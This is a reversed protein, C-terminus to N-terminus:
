PRTFLIEGTTKETGTLPPLVYHGNGILVDSSLAPQRLVGSFTVPRKITKNAVMDSLVFSGTFTGTTPSFTRTKWQTSNVSSSDISVLNKSSLNLRNPLNDNAASNTTTHNVSFSFASGNFYLGLRDALTIAPVIPTTKTAAKAAAPPLWPDIMLVTNVPGFGARYSTDTARGTKKWTLGAQEVYRRNFLESNSSPNPHVALSIDGALYSETRATRYPQVFLRYSPNEQNDPSLASTFTTGDGLRGTLTMVGTRSVAATAWGSGLPVTEGAPTAPELIATHAGAYQVATRPALNLLRRGNNASGLPASDRTASALVDGGLPLTFDIVYPIKIKNVLVNTTAIGRTTESRLNSTLSGTFSVASTHTGTSLKATFTRSSTPVTISLKAVPLATSDMLLAEYTGAFSEIVMSGPQYNFTYNLAAAGRATIPYVGGLSTVTATTTLLPAKTLAASTDTGKFGTVNYTLPPNPQGLFKNKDSPRVTLMAKAIVLTGTKVVADDDVRFLYSGANTPATSGYVGDIRYSIVPSSGGLTSIQKPNGDYTQSLDTLTLTRPNGNVIISRTVAAAASYNSGGPQSATLKVTGTGTLTLVNGDLIAPGSVLTFAVPLGSSATATLSIPYWDLYARAPPMFTIAQSKLTSLDGFGSIAFTYPSTERSNNAITVTAHRKGPLRPDFTIAFTTSDGETLPSDPEASVTFDAAAEGSIQIFDQGTLLIEEGAVNSLTFSRTKQTNLLATSGFDTGDAFAPTSDANAIPLTNGSIQMVAWPPLALLALTHNALPGSISQMFRGGPLRASASVAVPIWSDATGNNGLKGNWNSGWAAVTGDLCQAVSHDEGASVAVVTKGSLVGTTRVAVPTTSNTSSNNGLQGNLNYGWAATTGDSCIALSHYGGASISVVTKSSLVGTATVAVPVNSNTSSSNGLQGYDNFGWAAVTGDSCLGMSHATGASVAVVTKDFLVGTTTVAVPVHSNTTGNSGLQGSFNYGWAAVTGDSCLALSYESGASVAVVTKGSLVETATVTVPVSSSTTSGNGLQGVNNYGWAAVTGDSCLALSHYSGASIAIVTKGSLAGTATVAVPVSSSTGSDNGWTAVTGDSCLALSHVKGASISVVTKGSLVGDGRVAAPIRNGTPTPSTNGLQGASNWGWALLRIEKWVLVLDNGTGGYYNVVFNYNVGGHNLTATQGQILNSFVGNIFGIGTNKVVMLETGLDPAYGLTLTATSGSIITVTPLTMPVDAAATYSSILNGLATGFMGVSSYSIGLANIAYAKFSYATRENLGTVSATFVGTTGTAMVKTVGNGDISPNSNTATEAYVIGREIITVKGDSVVNGGLTATSVTAEASTPMIVVPAMPPPSVGLALAHNAFPGTSTRAFLEGYLRAGTSVAVPTSSSILSNNGLQGSSNSGWTAVTGDTCLAMSQYSGASIAAVTKGSLVGNRLVAVPVTSDTTSNNGLQGSDNEGWAAVTGDSCLAVSHYFGASAAVVTKGSLVGTATVAVPVSSSSASGNGLQGANNFGWAAVTGDSCLALSHYVGASIAVVAKGTLLGTMTVAVPETSDEESNNGWTAVTGDSCLALSHDYGASVAVVTKGSLVGTTTVAVPVNSDMTSNNGLQGNGNRGWTALTGDSCLAMSHSRGASVAVVTKGSLVGAAMVAVPVSSSTTSNNGLQGYFNDGWAVLTGDSCLAMSHKEGASATVVTKDYLPSTATVVVPATSQITSNSGLQGSDNKGWALLRNDKWMLVLDNGTGGYYNVIFHYDAGGYSLTVSQGQSLNSFVGSIFSIGTNKVVMLEAGNLPVYNLALTATSGSIITVSPLTMPVHNAAMYSSTLNGLATGFREVRTYVTGLANIAYAKFSYSTEKELGTVPVLFVGTTGSATLKTVGPGGINPNSNAATEAYVIGRETITLDGDSTVNGGLSATSATVNETTPLIVTPAAPPVAVLALTHYAISGAFTATFREGPALASTSVAVAVSSYVNTPSNNGLQGSNNSGCSAATGDSCLVVSHVAGASVAVVKKGSLVGTAKMPVMEDSDVTSQNGLQGNNNRGWAAVTGDSCLAVSHDRGASIAVVNKGLLAGTVRVPVPVQSDLTNNNGLQGYENSGWAAMTGDSCLALSHDYGASVAVVTKGSLAGTATVAVPVSSDTSNNNGLEGFSNYGWAVVTGDSCLAVSHSNGAAIAVVTKGSLVGTATVAVPVKRNATSNDGLQGAWNYGWAALTGDSCLAVSYDYGASVAVVTKGSLVGDATVAVPVSSATTSNNGLQGSSNAGWTAVTGDSCLAVSHKYGAAVSVVTKGALVGTASVALPVRGNNTRNNGMQGYENWGWALLRKHKWVLVLDNGTGGYYNVVFNYDVGGYSLKVTQGQALNSFVGRILSLGTNKVVTLDTGAVPPYGLTLAATSGSIITVSPLTQPINDAATYSAALNGLAWGFTEVNTYGTGLANTAYAKFSYSTQANLGTVSTTFPGTTGTTTVKVVGNGGISPNSNASTESYIIGRETITADGDSTVNGGFSTTSATVRSITPMAVTPITPPLAVLALSHYAQSGSSFTTFRAGSILGSTSVAVPVRSSITLMNGMQGYYNSGWAALTGDSCLALSHSAGASVAVVTKGSLLGTTTVAVPVSSATASNNGLKGSSNDGWAAVTGDSCLALSYRYGASLAVVTKGSLVGTASVAVPVGSNFMSNNGLQGSHNAGWAAVTGDSCLALSHNDGASVAVVTKGSLVGTAAVAIPVSSDTTSDDGLGGFTNDGWAAVTGDSCLALSHEAGASVSVVQKGALVGTAIVAVPVNSNTTSNDGLQGSNNRGWAVVSGDSCLAMSYGYGASVAVVTKGSLVGDATVAVPATSATTSNNGLQGSSNAGWAAVTGDSCLAVSHTNGASVAVVTKGSLVNNVTVAGPEFSNSSSDSALQGNDNKGWALLRTNKWALVLDNGNGGYYNAVFKYNVGSYGLTVEQGQNLNSFVGNIFSLGTNKVVTLETGAEPEYGLTFNVSNGTAIYSAATVPLDTAGNYTATVVAARASLVFTLYTLVLFILPRQTNM